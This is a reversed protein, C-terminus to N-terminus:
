YYERRHIDWRTNQCQDTSPCRTQKQRTPKQSYLQLWYSQLLYSQFELNEIGKPTYKFHFEHIMPCSQTSHKSSAGCEKEMTSVHNAM